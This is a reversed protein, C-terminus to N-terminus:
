RFGPLVAGCPMNPHRAPANIETGYCPDIVLITNPGIYRKRLSYPTKFWARGTNDRNPLLARTMLDHPLKMTGYCIQETYYEIQGHGPPSSEM